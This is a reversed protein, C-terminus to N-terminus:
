SRLGMSSPVTTDIQVAGTAVILDYGRRPMETAEAIKCHTTVVDIGRAAMAEEVAKVIVTSTAIGTGCAVLGRRSKPM